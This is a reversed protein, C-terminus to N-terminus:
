PKKEYNCKNHPSTRTCYFTNQKREITHSEKYTIIILTPKKKNQQTHLNRKYHTHTPEKKHKRQKLKEDKKTIKKKEKQPLNRLWTTLLLLLLLVNVSVFGLILFTM